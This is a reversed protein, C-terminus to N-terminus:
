RDQRGRRQDKELLFHQAEEIWRQNNPINPAVKLYSRFAEAAERMQRKQKYLTGLYFYPPAFDPRLRVVTQYAALAEDDTGKVSLATGLNFHILADDPHEHLAARYEAIAGTLDGKRQLVTGLNNHADPDDPRHQLLKRYEAIAGELDGKGQLAAGLGLHARTLTPMLQLALRFERLAEDYKGQDNLAAGLKRHEEANGPGGTGASESPSSKPHRDEKAPGPAHQLDPGRALEVWNRAVQEESEILVLTERRYELLTHLSSPDTNTNLRQTYGDLEKRYTDLKDRSQMLGVKALEDGLVPELQRLIEAPDIVATAQVSAKDATGDGAAQLPHEVIQLIGPLYARLEERTFGQRKMIPVDSLSAAVQDFLLWKAQLFALRQADSRSDYAGMRYEGIASIPQVDARVPPCALLMSLLLIPWVIFM